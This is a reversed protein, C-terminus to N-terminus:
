YTVWSGFRLIGFEQNIKTDSPIFLELIRPLEQGGLSRFEQFSKTDSLMRYNGCEQFSNTDSPLKRNGFEQFSMPDSVIARNGFEQFYQNCSPTTRNGFEQFHQNCRPKLKNNSPLLTSANTAPQHQGCLNRFHQNCSPLVQCCNPLTPQLRTDGLDWVTRLTPSM